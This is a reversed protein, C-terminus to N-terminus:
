LDYHTIEGLGEKYFLPLISMFGLWVEYFLSLIGTYIGKKYFLRVISQTFGGKRFPSLPPNSIYVEKHKKYLTEIKKQWPTHRTM